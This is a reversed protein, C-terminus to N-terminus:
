NKNIVRAISRSLIGAHPSQLLDYIVRAKRKGMLSLYFIVMFNALSKPYISVLYAAMRAIGGARTPWLKDFEGRTYVGLARHKLLIDLRRWPERPCVKRKVSDSYDPLSWIFNPWAIMWIEFRASSWSANGLRIIISPEATVRVNEVAPSQFVVGVHAFGSGYYSSAKKSLWYNRRVVYCGIFTLYKAMEAFFTEQDAKRYVRDSDIKILHSDIVTSLRSNRVESNAVILDYGGGLLPLMRAIAGPLLLDDDSMLWCYEGEAYKVAEDFSCDAGTNEQKRFYRVEPHRLLYQTVVETTKDSSANDVIVIEVGPELQVLM